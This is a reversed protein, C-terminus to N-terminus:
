QESDGIPKEYRGKGKKIRVRCPNLDITLARKKPRSQKKGAVGKEGAVMPSVLRLM